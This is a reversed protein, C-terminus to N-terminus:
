ESVLLKLKDNEKNGMKTAKNVEHYCGGNEM